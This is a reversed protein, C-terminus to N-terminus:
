KTEKKSVDNLRSVLKNGEDIIRESVKGDIKYLHYKLYEQGKKILSDVTASDSLVSKLTKEMESVSTVGISAGSEIVCFPGVRVGDALEANKHIVASPHIQPEM